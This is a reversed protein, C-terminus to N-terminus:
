RWKIVMLDYLEHSILVYGDEQEEYEGWYNMALWLKVEEHIKVRVKDNIVSYESIKSLELVKWDTGYISKTMIFQPEWGLDIKLQGDEVRPNSVRDILLTNM